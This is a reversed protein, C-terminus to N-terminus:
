RPELTVTPRLHKCGGAQLAVRSLAVHRDSALLPSGLCFPVSSTQSGPLLTTLPFCCGSTVMYRELAAILDRCELPAEIRSFRHSFRNVVQAFYIFLYIIIVAASSLPGM